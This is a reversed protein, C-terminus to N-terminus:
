FITDVDVYNTEDEYAVTGNPRTLTVTYRVEYAETGIVLHPDTTSGSEGSVTECPLDPVQSPLPPSSPRTEREFCATYTQTSTLGGISWQLDVGQNTATATAVFQPPPPTTVTISKTVVATNQYGGAFSPDSTYTITARLTGSGAGAASLTASTTDSSAVSFPADRSVTWVTQDITLVPNGQCDNGRPRNVTYTPSDGVEFSSPGSLSFGCPGPRSADATATAAIDAGAPDAADCGTLLAPALALLAVLLFPLSRM